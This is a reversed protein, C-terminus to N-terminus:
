PNDVRKAVYQNHPFFIWCGLDPQPVNTAIPIPVIGDPDSISCYHEYLTFLM